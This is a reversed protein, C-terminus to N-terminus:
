YLTFNAGCGLTRPGELKRGKENRFVYVKNPATITIDAVGDGDMDGRLVIHGIEGEARPKGGFLDKQPEMAFTGIRRGQFDFVGREYPVVIDDYGDGNWDVLTHFRSYGTKLEGLLGGNEDLVWLANNDNLDVLIQPGSRQPHVRGIDISEFHHGGIEWQTKGAGDVAVLKNGGCCTLVLRWDQPTKGRRLVRCCDMHGGLRRADALTWRLQGGPNLMAYGAMIEDRGDADIDVPIPQHATVFGGPNRVTWLLKGLYDLAWIQGYRTKVLVDMAPLRGLLNAFVLCDTADPPIPLRRREKGTAGDLEVLYGRAAVVVEKTGDGNWDVIQCAVDHHLGRRGINPDGWRWLVHGDLRQAVVASTYHVDGVNVNRASVIEVQGDGDIDGTIVWAGSYKPDLPVEKWPRILPAQDGPDSHAVADFFAPKIALDGAFATRYVVIALVTAIYKM